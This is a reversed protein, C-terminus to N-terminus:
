IYTTKAPKGLAAIPQGNLEVIQCKKLLKNRFLTTHFHLGLKFKFSLLINNSVFGCISLAFIPV